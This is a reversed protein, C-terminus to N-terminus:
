LYKRTILHEPKNGLLIIRFTSEVNSYLWELRETIIDWIFLACSQTHLATIETLDITELNVAVGSVGKRKRYRRIVEQEIAYIIDFNKIKGIYDNYVAGMM